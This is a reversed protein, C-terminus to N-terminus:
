VFQQTVERSREKNLIGVSRGPHTDRGQRQCFLIFQEVTREGM